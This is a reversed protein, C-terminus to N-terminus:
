NLGKKSILFELLTREEIIELIQFIRSMDQLSIGLSRIKFEILNQNKSIQQRNPFDGLHLQIHQDISDKLELSLVTPLSSIASEFTTKQDQIYKRVILM